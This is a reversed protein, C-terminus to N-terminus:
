SLLGRKQPCSLTCGLYYQNFGNEKEYELNKFSIKKWIHFINFRWLGKYGNPESLRGLTKQNMPASFFYIDTGEAHLSSSTRMCSMAQLERIKGLRTSRNLLLFVPFSDAASHISPRDM